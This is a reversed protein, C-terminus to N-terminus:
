FQMPFDAPFPLPNLFSAGTKMIQCVDHREFLSYRHLANLHIACTVAIQYPFGENRRMVTFEGGSDCEEKATAVILLSGLHISTGSITLLRADYELDCCVHHPHTGCEALPHLDEGGM